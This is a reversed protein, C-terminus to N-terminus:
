DSRRGVHPIRYGRKIAWLGIVVWLLVLIMAVAVDHDVLLGVIGGAGSHGPQQRDVSAGQDVYVANFGLQGATTTQEIRYDGSQEVTGGADSVWSPTANGTTAAGGIMMTALWILGVAVRYMTKM